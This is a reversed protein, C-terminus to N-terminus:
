APVVRYNHRDIVGDQDLRAVYEWAAAETLFVGRSRMDQWRKGCSYAKTQVKFMVATERNTVTNHVGSVPIDIM